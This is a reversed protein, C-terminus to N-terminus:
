FLSEPIFKEVANFRYGATIGIKLDETLFYSPDLMFYGMEFSSRLSVYARPANYGLSLMAVGKWESNVSTREGASGQYVNVAIGTGFFALPSIFLKGNSTTWNFGYGPLILLGPAYAYQLGAQEGYTAAVDLASPVLQTGVGLRRYFPEIRMLFSGVSKRQLESQFAAAKFSYKLNNFYYTYQVGLNVLNLSPSSKFQGSADSAVLGTSELWYGRITWKRGSYSGSLRFQSLNQVDNALITTMPISFALDFDIFKYTLGFGLLDSVNSFMGGGTPAAERKSGYELTYRQSSYTVRFDNKRVFSQIFLSDAADPKVLSGIPGPSTQCVAAEAGM